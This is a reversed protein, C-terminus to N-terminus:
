MAAKLRSIKESIYIYEQNSPNDTAVVGQYQQYEKIADEIKGQTEYIRAVGTYGIGEYGDTTKLISYEQIAKDYSGLGEESQAIGYTVLAYLPQPEKLDARVTAYQQRAADYKKEGIHHQAIEVRAWLASETGSFKEILAELSQIKADGDLKQALALASSSDKIRKETYSDYLAWFVVVAITISLIVYITRQNKRVYQVATPPLNLQELVGGLDAKESEDVHIKEFANEGAM